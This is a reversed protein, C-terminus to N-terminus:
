NRSPRARATIGRSNSKPCTGPRNAFLLTVTPVSRSSPAPRDVAYRVAARIPYSRNHDISTFPDLHEGFLRLFDRGSLSEPLRHEYTSRFESPPINSLYGKWLLDTWRPIGSVEELTLPLCKWQCIMKYGIFAAARDAVFEDHGLSELPVFLFSVAVDLFM